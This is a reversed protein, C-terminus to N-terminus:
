QKLDKAASLIVHGVQESSAAMDIMIVCCIDRDCRM